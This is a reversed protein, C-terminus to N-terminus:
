NPPGRRIDDLSEIEMTMLETAGLERCLERYAPDPRDPLIIEGPSDTHSDYYNLLARLEGELTDTAQEGQPGPYEPFLAPWSPMIGDWKAGRRFPKKHPWWCAMVLPIRPQQVPLVSLKGENVTFFEGSFTVAEGSWLGAIIALAEDYKRGLAKPAYTGGYAEYEHPTGLGLGLLLRGDSLHDLTAAVRAIRWPQQAPAPTIWTGLRIAETQVAITALVTWPDSYLDYPSFSDSVYVGDWGAEEAAVGYAVATKVDFASGNKLWVSHKLEAQQPLM